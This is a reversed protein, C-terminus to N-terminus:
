WQGVLVVLVAAVVVVVVIIVLVVVLVPPIVYTSNLPTRMRDKNTISASERARGDGVRLNTECM